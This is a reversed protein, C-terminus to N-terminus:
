SGEGLGSQEEKHESERDERRKQRRERWTSRRSSGVLGSEASGESRKGSMKQTHTEASGRSQLLNGCVIGIIRM